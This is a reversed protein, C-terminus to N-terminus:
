AGIRRMAIAIELMAPDDTRYALDGFTDSM